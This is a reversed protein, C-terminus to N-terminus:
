FKDSLDFNGVPTARIALGSLYLDAGPTESKIQVRIRKGKRRVMAQDLVLDIPFLLNNYENM